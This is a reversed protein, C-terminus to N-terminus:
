KPSRSAPGGIGVQQGSATSPIGGATKPRPAVPQAGVTSSVQYMRATGAGPWSRTAVREPVDAAAPEILLGLHPVRGAAQDRLAALEGPDAAARDPRAPGLGVRRRRFHGPVVQGLRDLRRPPQQSGAAGRRRGRGAAAAGRAPQLDAETPRLAYLIAILALAALGYSAEMLRTVWIPAGGAELLFKGRIPLNSAFLVAAAAATLVRRRDRGDGVLVGIVIVVWCLHHIWAVPSLLAALLGTIAIGAM